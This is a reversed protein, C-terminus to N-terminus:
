TYEIGGGLTHSYETEELRIDQLEWPTMTSKTSMSIVGSERSPKRVFAALTVAGQHSGVDERGKEIQGDRLHNKKEPFIQKKELIRSWYRHIMSTQYVRVEFSM